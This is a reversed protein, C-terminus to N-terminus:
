TGIQICTDYSTGMKGTINLCSSSYSSGLPNAIIVDYQGEIDSVGGHVLNIGKRNGLEVLEGSFDYGKVFLGQRVFSLLNWRGGTGFELVSKIKKLNKHEIITQYISDGRGDSYFTEYNNVFNDGDYLRRYEDSEYFFRYYQATMRPNNQILGCKKCIVTSQILGYRDISAVLSFKDNGCLCPVEEFPIRSSLIRRNFDSVAKLQTDDLELYHRGREHFLNINILKDTIQM